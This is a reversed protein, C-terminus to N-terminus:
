LVINSFLTIFCMGFAVSQLNIEWSRMGADGVGFRLSSGVEIVIGEDRGDVGHGGELKRREVWEAGHRVCLSRGKIEWNARMIRRVRLRRM